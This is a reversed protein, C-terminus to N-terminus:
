TLCIVVRGGKVPECREITIPNLAYDNLCFADSIGDLASKVSSLMGDLDRKRKDPPHFEIEVALTDGQVDALNSIYARQPHSFALWYAAERYAKAAKAKAHFHPRANPHLERPPWDLTIM